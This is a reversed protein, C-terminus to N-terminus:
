GLFHWSFTYNSAAVPTGIIVFTMNTATVATIGCAVPVTPLAGFVSCTPFGTTTWTLDKFTLVFTCTNAAQGVGTSALTVTGRSDNGTVASISATSGCTANITGFDTTAIATGVNLYLRRIGWQDHAAYGTLFLCIFVLILLSKKM